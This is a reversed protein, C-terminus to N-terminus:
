PANKAANKLEFVIGRCYPKDHEMVEFTVHPIDTKYTWSHGPDDHWIAEIKRAARKRSFYDELEEDDDISDRDPLLGRSDILATGGDYAGGEDEIAGRFEMLDDSAGFVVVLGDAKAASEEETTMEERYQRGNLQAALQEKTM